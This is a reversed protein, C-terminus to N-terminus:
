PKLIIGAGKCLETIENLTDEGVNKIAQIETSSLDKIRSINIQPLEDYDIRYKESFYNLLANTARASLGSNVIKTNKNINVNEKFMEEPGVKGTLEDLQIQINFIITDAQHSSFGKRGPRIKKMGAIQSELDMIEFMLDFQKDTIEAKEKIIKKFHNSYKM